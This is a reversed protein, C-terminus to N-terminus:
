FYIKQEKGTKIRELTLFGDKESFFIVRVTMAGKLCEIWLQWKLLVCPDAAQM